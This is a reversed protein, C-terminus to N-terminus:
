DKHISAKLLAPKAPRRQLASCGRRRIPLASQNTDERLQSRAERIRTDFPKAALAQLASELLESLPFPLDAELSSAAAATAQWCVKLRPLLDRGHQSLRILKQRGDDPGSAASLIGDKLMLAVTQTASPQTIGAAEAIQGITLPELDMLARVVPTYRPRYRLGLDQYAAGVAGDLLEILHRLQTGLTQKV